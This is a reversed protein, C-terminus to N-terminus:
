DAKALIKVDGSGNWISCEIYVTQGAALEVSMSFNSADGSDDDRMMPTKSFDESEYMATIPNLDSESWITYIGAAPATFEVYLFTSDDPFSLSVSSGVNLIPYGSASTQAAPADTQAAPAEAAEKELQELYADYSPPLLDTGSWKSGYKRFGFEYKFYDDDSERYTARINWKDGDTVGVQWDVANETDYFWGETVNFGHEIVVMKASGVSDKSNDIYLNFAGATADDMVFQAWATSFQGDYDAYEGGAETIRFWGYWTGDWFAKPDAGTATSAGGSSAAPANFDVDLFYSPKMDTDDPWTGDEKVLMTSFSLDSNGSDDFISLIQPEIGYTDYGGMFGKFPKGFATGEYNLYDGDVVLNNLEFVPEMGDPYRFEISWTYDTFVKIRAKFPVLQKDDNADWYELGGDYIGNYKSDSLPKTDEAAAPTAGEGGPLNLSPIGDASTGGERVLTMAVGSDLVNELTMVGNELTGDCEMGGGKVHFVGDELTWKGNAKSGDIEMACKGGSKLEITFGKEFVDEVSLEMGLMQATKATYLGANPDDEEKSGCATLSLAMLACLALAILRKFKM